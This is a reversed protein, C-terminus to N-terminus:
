PDQLAPKPASLDKPNLFLISSKLPLSQKTTHFDIIWTLQVLLDRM